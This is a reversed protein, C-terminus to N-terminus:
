KKKGKKKGKKKKGKAARPDVLPERPPRPPPCGRALYTALPSVGSVDRILAALKEPSDDDAKTTRYGNSSNMKAKLSCKYETEEPDTKFIFANNVLAFCRTICKGLNTFTITADLQGAFSGGSDALDYPGRFMFSKKKYVNLTNLDCACGSLYTRIGCIPFEDGVRFVGIHVPLRKMTKVLQECPASFHCTRGGTFRYVHVDDNKPFRKREAVETVPLDIIVAKVTLSSGAVDGKADNNLLLESIFVDLLYLGYM